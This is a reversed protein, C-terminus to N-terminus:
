SKHFLHSTFCGQELVHYKVGSLSMNDLYLMYLNEVRLGKVLIEKDLNHEIIYGQNNFTTTYGNDCFQSINLINNKLGEVLMVDKITTTSPNLVLGKGLLKSLNIDGYSSFGCEKRMFDIFM